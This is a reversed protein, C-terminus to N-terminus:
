HRQVTCADIDTYVLVGLQYCEQRSVTGDKNWITAPGHRQNNIYSAEYLKSGNLYWITDLGNLEGDRYESTREIGGDPTLLTATGSFPISSGPEFVLGDRHVYKVSKKRLDPELTHVAAADTRPHSDTRIKLSGPTYCVLDNSICPMNESVVGAMTVHGDNTFSLLLHHRKTGGSGLEGSELLAGPTDIWAIIYAWESLDQYETYVWWEGEDYTAHPTGLRAQIEDKTTRNVHIFGIDKKQFPKAEGVKTPFVVCGALWLCTLQFAIFRIFPTASIQM